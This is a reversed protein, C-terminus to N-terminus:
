SLSVHSRSEQDQQEERQRAADDVGQRAPPQGPPETLHDGAGPDQPGQHHGDDGEDPAAAAGLVEGEERPNLHSVKGRGHVDIVIGQGRDHDQHDGEDGAEDVEIGHGEHPIVGIVDAVEAVQIEEDEGHQDDGQRVIQEKDVQAPFPHPETGVGEDAEPVGLLVIGVGAALGKDDGADAVHGEPHGQGQKEGQKLTEGDGVDVGVGGTQAGGQGGGQGQQEEPRRRTFRGLQGQRHPQRVGHGAGGRHRGQNVGGGHDGGADIEEHPEKRHHGERGGGHHDDGAHARHGNEIGDNAARAWTSM